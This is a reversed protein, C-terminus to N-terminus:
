IQSAVFGTRIAAKVFGKRNKLILRYVGPRSELAEEAGGVALVAANGTGQKTLIWEVSKRSVDYIGTLSM